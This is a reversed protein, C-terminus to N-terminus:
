GGPCAGLRYGTGHVTSVLWASRGLKRRISLVHVDVTRSAVEKDKGGRELLDERTLARDANRALKFLIDFETPTLNIPKAEVLVERRAPFIQMPGCELADSSVTRARRLVARVREIFIRPNFRQKEIFDDAGQEFLQVELASSPSGGTLIMIPTNRLAPDKRIEACVDPGHPVSGLQLDLLVLDPNVERILRLGTIGDLAGECDFEASRLVEAVMNQMLSDDEIFVIRRRTGVAMGAHDM